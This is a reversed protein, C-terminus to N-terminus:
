GLIRAKTRAWLGIPKTYDFEFEFPQSEFGGDFRMMFTRAKNTLPIEVDGLQVRGVHVHVNGCGADILALAIPCCDPQLAKGNDIHDQTVKIKM